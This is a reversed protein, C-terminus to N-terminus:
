ARGVRLPAHLKNVLLERVHNATNGRLSSQKSPEKSNSSSVPLKRINNSIDVNRKSCSDPYAKNWKHILPNGSYPYLSKHEVM